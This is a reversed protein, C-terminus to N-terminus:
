QKIATPALRRAHDRPLEDKRVTEDVRAPEVRDPEIGIQRLLELRRPSESALILVPRASM